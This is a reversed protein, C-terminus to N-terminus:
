TFIEMIADIGSYHGHYMQWYRWRFITANRLFTLRPPLYSFVTNSIM